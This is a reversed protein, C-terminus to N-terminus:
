RLILQEVIEVQPQEKAMQCMKEMDMEVPDYRYNFWISHNKEKLHVNVEFPSDDYNWRPYESWSHSIYRQKDPKNLRTFRVLLKILLTVHFLTGLTGQNLFTKFVM